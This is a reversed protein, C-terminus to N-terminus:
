NDGILVPRAIKFWYECELQGDEPLDTCHIGNRVRDVGVLARLSGPRLHRAIEPDQPGVVARLKEVVGAERIEMVCCTGSSLEEAQAPQEPLVGKYVELFEEAVDRPPTFTELASIEFLPLLHGLILGLSGLAHPRVILCSCNNLIATSRFRQQAVSGQRFFWSIELDASQPSNSVHLFKRYELAVAAARDVANEGSLELGIVVDSVLDSAALEGGVIDVFERAEGESLKSMRGAVICLGSLEMKRIIEGTASYGDSFIIAFAKSSSTSVYESTAEDAAGVLKMSRGCIVVSNGPRWNALPAACPYKRLFLKKKEHVEASSESPYFIM